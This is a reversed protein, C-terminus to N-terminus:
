ADLPGNLRMANIQYKKAIEMSHEAYGSFRALPSADKREQSTNGQSSQGTLTDLINKGRVVVKALKKEDERSAINM